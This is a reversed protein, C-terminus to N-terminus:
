FKAFFNITPHLCHAAFLSANNGHRMCVGFAPPRYFLPLIIVSPVLFVLLFHPFYPFLSLWLIYTPLVSIFTSMRFVPISSFLYVLSSSLYHLFFCLLFLQFAIACFLSLLSMAFSMVLLLVADQLPRLCSPDWSRGWCGSLSALGSSPAPCRIPCRRLLWEPGSNLRIVKMEAWPRGPSSPTLSPPPPTQPLLTCPALSHTLSSPLPSSHTSTTASLSFAVALTLSSPSPSAINELSHTIRIRPFTKRARPPDRLTRDM